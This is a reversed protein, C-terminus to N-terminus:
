NIHTHTHTTQRHVKKSTPIPYPNTQFSTSKNNRDNHSFFSFATTNQISEKQVDHLLSFNLFAKTGTLMPLRKKGRTNILYM